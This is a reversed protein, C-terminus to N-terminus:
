KVELKCWGFPIHRDIDIKRTKPFEYQYSKGKTMTRVKEFLQHDNKIKLGITMSMFGAGHGIKLLPTDKSNLKQIKEYFTSLFDINYKKAFELEYNILDRSFTYIIEKIKDFNLNKGKDHLGLIKLLEDNSNIAIDGEIKLNMPTTEIYTQVINNKRKHWNWGNYMVELTQECVIELKYVYNSDSIQLFKLLDSYSSNKTNGSIIKDLITDASQGCQLKDRIKNIDDENIMHYLFTTRIAGKISSGPIFSINNTKIFESIESPIKENSLNATYLRSNPSIENGIFDKLTMGPEELFFIFDDKANDDEISEYIKGIEARTLLKNKMVFEKNSYKNGNGIHVPSIVELSYRNLYRNM